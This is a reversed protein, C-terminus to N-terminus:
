FGVRTEGKGEITGIESLHIISQKKNIERMKYDTMVCAHAKQVVGRGNNFSLLSLLFFDCEDVLLRADPPPISLLLEDQREM